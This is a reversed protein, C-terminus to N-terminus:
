ALPQSVTEGGLTVTLRGDAAAFVAQCSPGGGGNLARGATARVREVFAAAAAGDLNAYEAAHVAMGVLIDTVGPDNPVTLKFTFSSPNM